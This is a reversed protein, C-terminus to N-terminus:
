QLRRQLFMLESLNFSVRVAFIRERVLEHSTTGRLGLDFNIDVSSGAALSPIGLGASIMVTQIKQENLGLSLHGTDYSVGARYIFYTFFNREARRLAAYEMGLGLKVRDQLYDEGSGTLNEYDSWNQGIIEATTLMYRNFQYTLGFGYEMPLRGGTTGLEDSSRLVVDSNSISSRLEQNGSLNIPLSYTAGFSLADNAALLSPFYGYVGFRNGFGRSSAELVTNVGTYGPSNFATESYQNYVGFVFSAAYGISINDTLAYGLGLELKNLGGDNSALTAYRLTDANNVNEFTNISNFRKETVPYMAITAGLESRIIPFQLQLHTFGLNSNVANGNNDQAEYVHYSFGGNALTFYTNSLLAPNALTAYLRNSIAIGTVGMANAQSSRYDVPQGAGLNSYVSTSNYQDQANVVSTSAFLVLVIIFLRQFRYM